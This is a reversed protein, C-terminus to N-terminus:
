KIKSMKEKTKRKNIYMLGDARTYTNFINEDKDKDFIAYGISMSVTINDKLNTTHINSEIKDLINKIHNESISRMIIIFEDGGVRYLIDEKSISKELIKSATKIYRDGEQHGLTDNVIKLNNLDISLISVQPQIKSNKINNMDIEFSNRNKLNTLYDSNALDKYTPNSIRKFLGVAMLVSFICTLIAIIPTGIRIMKFTNYQHEADFEIGLVGVVKEGDHIPFYSIFIYGWTTKKINKPFLIADNLAIEMDSWIEKEILDGANRFDLNESNLGDIIYILSNDKTKKATYLYRVGTSAKVGELLKKMDIYSQMSQDDISNINEFTSKDFNKEVYEYINRSRESLSLIMDNYTTIYNFFYVCVFSIIVIFATLISVQIDVRSIKNNIKM